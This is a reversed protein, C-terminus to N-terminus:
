QGCREWAHGYFLASSPHLVLRTHRHKFHPQVRLGRGEGLLPSKYSRQVMCHM